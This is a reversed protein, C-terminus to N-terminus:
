WNGLCTIFSDLGVKKVSVNKFNQLKFAEAITREVYVTGRNLQLKGGVSQISGSALQIFDFTLTLFSFFPM